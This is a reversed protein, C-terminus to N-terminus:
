LCPFEAGVPCPGTQATWSGLFWERSEWTCEFAQVGGNYTIVNGTCKVNRVALKGGTINKQETKSLMEVGELNLITKKM